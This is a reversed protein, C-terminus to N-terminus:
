EEPEDTRSDWARESRESREPHNKEMYEYFDEQTDPYWRHINDVPIYINGEETELVWVKETEDEFGAFAGEPYEEGIELSVLVYQGIKPTNIPHFGNAEINQERIWFPTL